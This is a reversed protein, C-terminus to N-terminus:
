ERRPTQPSTRAFKACPMTTTARTGCPCCTATKPTSSSCCAICCSWRPRACNTWIPPPPRKPKRIPFITGFVRAGLDQSVKEEYLRAENFAYEHFTRGEKDWTQRLFAGLHFLCFFLKIGHQADVNFPNEGASPVGLLAALDLELFEESRSRAGQWYLRWVAGNTLIGWHVARDSAVEVSSLYRLIQNSPTGPDLRSTADGRDLPRMWRKAELIAIGHRYRRDDRKETRASKKAEEDAFLLFDPVDERRTSTATVQKLTLGQWGLLDLVKEIIDAETNAENLQSDATLPAYIRKLDSIFISLAEDSLKEWVPTTKIGDLLFDQSFLKGDM